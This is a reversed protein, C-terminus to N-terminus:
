QSVLETKLNELTTEKLNLEFNTKSKTNIYFIDYYIKEKSNCCVIAKISNKIKFNNIKLSEISKYNYAIISRIDKYVFYITYNNTELKNLNSITIDAIKDPFILRDCNIWGLKSSAFNYVENQTNYFEERNKIREEKQSETLSKNKIIDDNENYNPALFDIESNTSRLNEQMLRFLEISDQKKVKALNEISVEKYYGGRGNEIRFKYNRIIDPIETFMKENSLKWKFISDNDNYYINSNSLPKNAIEVTYNKGDKINLQKGEEKFNIYFMGSSELLEDQDTITSLGNLIMDEKTYFEKLEFTIKGNTYNKFLDKPIFIKTGEKGVFLTDEKLIFEFTQLKDIKLLNTINQMKSISSIETEVKKDEQCSIFFVAILLFALRKM